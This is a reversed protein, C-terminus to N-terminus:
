LASKEAFAFLSLSVIRGVSAHRAGPPPPPGDVELQPFRTRLGKRRISFTGRISFVPM